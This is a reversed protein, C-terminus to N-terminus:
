YHLLFFVALIEFKRHGYPHELDPPSSSVRIVLWAFINNIVDTSSHIADGLIALSGTTLGVILKAILVIINVAGEILIIRQVQIDKKPNNDVATMAM